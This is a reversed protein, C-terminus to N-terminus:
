SIGEMVIWDYFHWKIRMCMGMLRSYSSSVGAGGGGGGGGGDLSAPTM